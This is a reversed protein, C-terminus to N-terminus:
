PIISTYKDWRTVGGEPYEELVALVGVYVHSVNHLDFSTQFTLSVQENASLSFDGEIVPVESTPKIEGFTANFELLDNEVCIFAKKIQFIDGEPIPHNKYSEVYCIVTFSVTGNSYVEEETITLGLHLYPFFGWEDENGDDENGDDANGLSLNVLYLTFWGSVICSIIICGALFKRRRSSQRWANQLKQFVHPSNV